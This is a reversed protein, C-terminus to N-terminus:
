RARQAAPEAVHVDTPRKGRLIVVHDYGRVYRGVPDRRDDFRRRCTAAGLPDQDDGSAAFLPACRQLSRAKVNLRQPRHVDDRGPRGRGCVGAETCRRSRDADGQARKRRRADGSLGQADQHDQSWRCRRMGAAIRYLDFPRCFPQAREPVANLNRGIRRGAGAVEIQSVDAIDRRGFRGQRLEFRERIKAAAHHHRRNEEIERVLHHPAGKSRDDRKAIANGVLVELSREAREGCPADTRLIAALRRRRTDLRRAWGIQAILKLNQAPDIMQEHIGIGLRMPDLAVEILRDGKTEHGGANICLQVSRRSACVEHPTKPQAIKQEM